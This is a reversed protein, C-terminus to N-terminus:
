ESKNSSYGYGMRKRYESPTCGKLERFARAFYSMEQFGCLAGIEAIKEQTVTLLEAAKQIRVQRVYQIPTTGIMSRFCRLCESESIAASKAIKASTLEESYHEQIYQLMWKMREAERRAKESPPMKGAAGHGALLFVLKSLAHRVEFEYGPQELACAQWADEMAMLAQDNWSVGQHFIVCRSSAESLIPQLYGQWFISDLSGGVLRPHFVMSHLRCEGAKASWVSHLAGGNIFCGNGQEIRYSEGEVAVIVSGTEVLIGELEEHWHWPVAEVRLDDHYCAIPFLATGHEVLEKGQRDTTTNCLSLAM